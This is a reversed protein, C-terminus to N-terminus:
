ILTLQQGGSATELDQVRLRAATLQSAIEWGEDCWRNRIPTLTICQRCVKQHARLQGALNDRIKKAEALMSTGATATFRRAGIVTVRAAAAQTM